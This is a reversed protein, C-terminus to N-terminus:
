YVCDELIDIIDRLPATAVGIVSDAGGYYAYLKKDKLVVGCSFVVNPMQGEKEYDM